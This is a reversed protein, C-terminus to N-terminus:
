VFKILIKNLLESLKTGFPFLCDSDIHNESDLVTYAEAYCCQNDKIWELM